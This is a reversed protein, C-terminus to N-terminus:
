LRTTWLFSTKSIDVIKMVPKQSLQLKLAQFAIEQASTWQLKNPFYKKTLRTLPEALEAFNPIFTSYYNAM